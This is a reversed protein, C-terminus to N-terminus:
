LNLVGKPDKIDSQEYFGEFPRASPDKDLNVWPKGLGEEVSFKRKGVRGGTRNMRVFDHVYFCEHNQAGLIFRVYM